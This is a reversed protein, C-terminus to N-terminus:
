GGLAAEVSAVVEARQDVALLDAAKCVSAWRVQERLGPEISARAAAYVDVLAAPMLALDCAAPGVAAESWDLLMVRGDHAAWINGPHLDGHLLTPPCEFWGPPPGAALEEGVQQALRPSLPAPVYAPAPRDRVEDLGAADGDIGVTADHVRALLRLAHGYSPLVDAPRELLLELLPAFGLPRLDAMSFGDEDAELVAPTAEPVLM